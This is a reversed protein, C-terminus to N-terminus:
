YLHVKNEIVKFWYEIQSASPIDDQCFHVEVGYHISLKGRKSILILRKGYQRFYDHLSKELAKQDILSRSTYNYILSVAGKVNYFAVDDLKTGGRTKTTYRYMSGKSGKVQMWKPM